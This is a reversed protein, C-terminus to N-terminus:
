YGLDFDVIHHPLEGSRYRELNRAVAAIINARTIDLNFGGAVHPTIMVNPFKWLPDHDPLPEPEMVDLAAGAIAGDELAEVLASTEVTDGRGANILYADPRIKAILEKSLFGATDKTSPLAMAVADARELVNACEHGVYLEDFIKSQQKTRCIGITYAGLAKIRRAYETGIDGTGICVITAGRIAKVKGRSKWRGAALHMNDRYLYLKKFMMLTMALMWESVGCGYAGSVNALLVGREKLGCQLYRNAGATTLQLYRLSLADKLVAPDPFGTLVEYKELDRGSTRKDLFDIQCNGAARILQEQEERGVPFLVGINM